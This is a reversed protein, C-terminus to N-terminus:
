VKQRLVGTSLWQVALAALHVAAEAEPQTQDRSNAGGGHRSRQGHWMQKLIAVLPEASGPQNRDSVLVLEWKDDQSELDRCVTGLSARTNAPSVVPVFAEEVARVAEKYAATPDPHLGYAHQWARRLYEAALESASKASTAVANEVTEDVRRVLQTGSDDVRYASGGAELIINLENVAPYGHGSSAYLMADVVDLLVSRHAGVIARIYSPDPSGLRPASAQIRLRLAVEQAVSPSPHQNGNAQCLAFEIWSRLAADLYEPVDKVLATDTSKGALRDSLRQFPVRDDSSV